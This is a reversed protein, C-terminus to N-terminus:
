SSQLTTPQFVLQKSQSTTTHPFGSLRTYLKEVVQLNFLVFQMNFFHISIAM